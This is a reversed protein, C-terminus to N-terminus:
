KQITKINEHCMHSLELRQKELMMIQNHLTEIFEQQKMCLAILGGTSVDKIEEKM